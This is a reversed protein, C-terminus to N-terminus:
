NTVIDSENGKLMDIVSQIMIKGNEIAYNFIKGIYAWVPDLTDSQLYEIVDFNFFFKLIVLAIVIVIILKIFGGNTKPTKM